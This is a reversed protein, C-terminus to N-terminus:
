MIATCAVDAVYQRKLESVDCLFWDVWFRSKSQMALISVDTDIVEPLDAAAFGWGPKKEDVNKRIQGLSATATTYRAKVKAGKAFM